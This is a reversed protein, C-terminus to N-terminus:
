MFLQQLIPSISSDFSKKVEWEYNTYVYYVGNELEYKYGFQKMYRFIRNISRGKSKNLMEEFYSKKYDVRDM